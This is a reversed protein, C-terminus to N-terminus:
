TSEVTTLDQKGVVNDVHWIGNDIFDSGDINSEHVLEMEDVSYLFSGFRLNCRQKDFPFLRADIRCSTCTIIPSSFIVTGDPEVKVFAAGGFIGFEMDVSFTFIFYPLKNFNYIFQYFTYM